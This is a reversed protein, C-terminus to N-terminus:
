TTPLPWPDHMTYTKEQSIQAKRNCWVYSCSKCCVSLVTINQTISLECYGPITLHRRVTAYLM